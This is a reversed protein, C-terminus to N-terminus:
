RDWRRPAPPDGSGRLMLRRACGRPVGRATAKRGDATLAVGGARIVFQSPSVEGNNVANIVVSDAILPRFEKRIQASAATAAGSGGYSAAAYIV